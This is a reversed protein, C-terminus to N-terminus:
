LRGAQSARRHLRNVVLKLCRLSVHTAQHDPHLILDIGGRGWSIYGIREGNLLVEESDFDATPEFKLDEDRDGIM